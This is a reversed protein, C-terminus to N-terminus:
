GLLQYLPDTGFLTFRFSFGSLLQSNFMSGWSPFTDIRSVKM